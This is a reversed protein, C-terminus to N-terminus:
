SLFSYHGKPVRGQPLQGSGNMTMAAICDGVSDVGGNGAKPHSTNILPNIPSYLAGYGSISSSTARVEHTPQFHNVWLAECAKRMAVTHSTHMTCPNTAAVSLPASM